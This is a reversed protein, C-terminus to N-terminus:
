NENILVKEIAKERYDQESQTLVVKEIYIHTHREGYIYTHNALKM